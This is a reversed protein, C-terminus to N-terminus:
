EKWLNLDAAYSVAELVLGHAPAPKTCQSRDRAVLAREVDEICWRGLGVALSVGVLNRVMQRLFGNASVTFILCRGPYDSIPELTTQVVGWEAKYLRRITNEGQPPQGFTAFDHEGLLQDIGAQMAQLDLVHPVYLAFRDTLPSYRPAARDEVTVWDYVTYRYTRSLASFRPHFGVPALQLKRIAISAPLHANLARQLSQVSHRWNVTAAMVQGHAHVGRDTRGSGSVRVQQGTVVLLATELAEQITPVGAQLQFGHYDTGDYAVLGCVHILSESM